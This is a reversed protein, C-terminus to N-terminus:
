KVHLKDQGQLRLVILGPYEGPPFSRIGTLNLDLKILARREQQCVATFRPNSAGGLEKDWVMAVDHGVRRLMEAAEVAFERGGQVEDRKEVCFHARRAKM